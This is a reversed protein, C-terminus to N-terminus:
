RIAGRHRFGARVIRPLNRLTEAVAFRAYDRYDADGALVDMHKVVMRENGRLARLFLGRTAQSFVLNRLMRVDRFSQVISRYGSAYFRLAHSPANRRAAQVIAHAAHYGSQIAFAIGEGTLPEVLGAADGVLLTSGRGPTAVFNGFPIPSGCLRESPVRGLAATAFQRFRERMDPNRAALGGIGVTLMTRKPFIWAYGWEVLGFYIEPDSIDRAISDRPVQAELGIAFGERDMRVGLLKRVRSGAGDAGIVFPAALVRGDELEIRAAGSDLAKLATGEVLTAGRSMAVAVLSADFDRRSTFHVPKCNAVRVLRRDRDFVTAGTSTVEIPYTCSAGFVDRIAGVSRESLLGGCLKERPFRAKDILAVRLGLGALVAAAAAGAPGAGVVVTDFSPLAASM